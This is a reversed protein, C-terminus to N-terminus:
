ERSRVAENDGYVKLTMWEGRCLLGSIVQTAPGLFHPSALCVVETNDGYGFGLYLSKGAAPSGDWVCTNHIITFLLSAQGYRQGGQSPVVTGCVHIIYLLLCYLPKDTGKGARVQGDQAGRGAGSSSRRGEVKRGVTTASLHLCPSPPPPPPSCQLNSGEIPAAKQSQQKRM